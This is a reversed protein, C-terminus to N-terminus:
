LLFIVLRFLQKLRQQHFIRRVDIGRHQQHPKIRLVQPLRLAGTFDKAPQLLLGMDGGTMDVKRTVRNIFPSHRFGSHPNGGENRFGNLRQDGGTTKTAGNFHQLLFDAFPGPIELGPQLQGLNMSPMAM